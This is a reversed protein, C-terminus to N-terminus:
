WATALLAEEPAGSTKQMWPLLHPTALHTDDGGGGDGGAAAIVQLLALAVRALSWPGRYDRWPEGVGVRCTPWWAPPLTRLDVLSAERWQWWARASPISLFYTGGEVKDLARRFSMRAVTSQRNKMIASITPPTSLLERAMAVSAAWRRVSKADKRMERKAMQIAALGLLWFIDKPQCRASTSPAVTDTRMIQSTVPM